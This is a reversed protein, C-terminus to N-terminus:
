IPRQVRGQTRAHRPTTQPEDNFTSIPLNQRRQYKNLKKRANVLNEEPEWLNDSNPYGKWKILYKYNSGHRRSSLIKEVKYEEEKNVIDPPPKNFHVGYTKNEIYPKLMVAHFNNHIKWTKLLELQYTLYGLKKIITFPGEAKPMFKPSINMKLNKTTLWVKQGVRFPKYNSKIREAMRSHAIEHAALAEQHDKMLQQLREEITPFKTPEFSTPIALPSTGMMLEFPTRIRDAHRQDNHTFELTSISMPWDEPHDSCYIAIYAEIEQNFRETSGDSQPRYTTTLNSKVGLMRLMEQFAKAAFQPRHDSIISDPLGFRKYLHDILLRAVGKHTITKTCPIFIAGKSLGHDIISLISDFGESPHLNTIMDMSCNAFPRDSKTGEIPQFAPKTPRQNIKYQQCKACGQVYNTIFRRMGPWWYHERIANFTELEGPHGATIQDHYNRIIKRRLAIDDPIYNKGKFFLINQGEFEETTWEELNKM